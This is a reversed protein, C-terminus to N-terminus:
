FDREVQITVHSIKHVRECYDTVTQLIEDTDVHPEVRIHCALLAKGVTIAWIHLEHVAVVGPFELFGSELAPADIERPTSEMLVELINRLMQITTGLVLVSFLLTCVLDLIQWEPNYWILAGAIMVGVSQILDGLVHLYAGQVNINNDQRQGSDNMCPWEGDGHCHGNNCHERDHDHSEGSEDNHEGHCRNARVDHGHEEHHNHNNHHGHKNSHDHGHGDHGLLFAMALNVFLGVTACVFMLLGNVSGLPNFLRLIAEYVLIGTLLWVLQISVLAGLIELRYFGFSQNPTAEWSAAWIAFLSIAFGAIDSLLHAADTLIALSNALIGGAVELGMFILCFVVAKVLKQSALARHAADAAVTAPRELGCRSNACKMRAPDKIQDLVGLTNGCEEYLAGEEVDREHDASSEHPKEM